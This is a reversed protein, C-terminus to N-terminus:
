NSNEIKEAVGTGFRKIKRHMTGLRECVSAVVPHEYRAHQVSDRVM